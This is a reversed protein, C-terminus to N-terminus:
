SRDPRLAQAIAGRSRIELKLYVNGLHKEVTKRTIFLRQAIERNTLGDAALQAVRRESPTLADIGALRARRPRAGTAALEEFGRTSLATAGCADAIRLGRRLPDRAANRHNARRLAAGYEILARAHELQAGSGELVAVAQGLLELDCGRAIALARLAVGLAVKGGFERTRQVAEGAIAEAEAAQGIGALAQALPARWGDRNPNDYGRATAWDGAARLHAVAETLRGQAIRADGMLVGPNPEVYGAAAAHAFGHEDILQEAADLDGRALATQIATGVIVWWPPSGQPAAELIELGAAADAEAARLDGQRLKVMSRWAYGMQALIMWGRSSVQEIGDDLLRLAREYQECHLHTVFLLVGLETGTDPDDFRVGNAAAKNAIRMTKAIPEGRAMMNAALAALVLRGAATTPDARAAAANLHTLTEDRRDDNTWWAGTWLLREAELERRLLTHNAGLEAAAQDLLDRSEAFAGFTPLVRGLMRAAMARQIPDIARGVADRLLSVSGALDMGGFYNITGLQLAIGAAAEPTPPESLARSLLRAGLEPAGSGIAEQAAAHLQEVVWADGAPATALLHAGVTGVDGGHEAVVRAARARWHLRVAPSQEHSIADRMLPHVFDLPGERTLFGADTLVQVSEAVARGDIGTLASIQVITAGSGLVSVARAVEVADPGFRGLRVMLVRGISAAGLESVRAAEAPAGTLEDDRAAALVERLFFPNGGTNAACAECFSESADSSLEVRVITAVAENSLAAPELRVVEPATLLSELQQSEAGPERLRAAVVVLVALDDLRRILYDLWRLSERDCWHADDIALLLPTREALNACLWFLGHQVSFTDVPGPTPTGHGLAPAALAAAGALLPGQEGEPLRRVYRDFAQRVIGFPLEQELEGGSARLVLLGEREADAVAAGLLSSKGIGPPGEIVVAGGV